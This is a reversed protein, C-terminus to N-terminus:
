NSGEDIVLCALRVVRNRHLVNDAAQILYITNGFVARMGPKIEVSPGPWRITIMDTSQAALANNSFSMKYALSGTSEIKARTPLVDAWTDIPQGFADRTSNPAQITIAHRLEGPNLICPDQKM